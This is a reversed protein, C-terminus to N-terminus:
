IYERQSEGSKWHRSNAAQARIKTDETPIGLREHFKADIATDALLNNSDPLAMTISARGVAGPETKVLTPVYMKAHDERTGGQEGTKGVRIIKLANIFASIKDQLLGELETDVEKVPASVADQSDVTDAGVLFGGKNPQPKTTEQKPKRQAM